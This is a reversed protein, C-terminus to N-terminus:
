NNSICKINAPGNPLINYGNTRIDQTIYEVFETANRQSWEKGELWYETMDIGCDSSLVVKTRDGM